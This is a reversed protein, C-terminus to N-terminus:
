RLLLYAPTPTAVSTNWHSIAGESWHTSPTQAEFTGYIRGIPNTGIQYATQNCHLGSYSEPGELLHLGFENYEDNAYAGANHATTCAQANNSLADGNSFYVSIRGGGELTHTNSLCERTDDM